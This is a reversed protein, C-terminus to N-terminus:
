ERAPGKAPRAFTENTIPPNLTWGTITFAPFPDDIGDTSTRITHPLLAGGVNRYDGLTLAITAFTGNRGRGRYSLVRPQATAQDLGVTVNSGAHRLYLYNLAPKAGSPTAVAAVEADGATAGKFISLVSHTIQERLATALAARALPPRADATPGQPRMAINFADDGNVVRVMTGMPTIRELRMSAPLQVLMVQEVTIPGTPSRMEARMNQRFATVGALQVGGIARSLSAALTRGRQRAEASVTLAPAPPELYKSPSATFAKQCDATGFLYIRGEHVTFLSPMGLTELGM